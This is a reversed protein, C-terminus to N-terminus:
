IIDGIIFHNPKNGYISSVLTPKKGPFQLTNLIVSGDNTAVELGEKSWSLIAGPNGQREGSYIGHIKITENHYHFYSGPWPQLGKFNLILQETSNDFNVLGDLKSLKPAFTVKSHDQPTPSIGLAIQNDITDILADAGIQALKKYVTAAIDDDKIQYKVMSYVDGADLEKVLRMISVGTLSDGAMLARNIPAAGRWRPLLSAHVNLCTIKPIDLVQQPLIMGYAVVVIIDPEYSKLEDITDQSKFNIPTHVPINHKSALEKVPSPSLKQGRGRPRDQQTYVACVEHQSSLCVALSPLAFDPTGAFVIKL